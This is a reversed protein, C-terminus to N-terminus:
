APRFPQDDSVPGGKIQRRVPCGHENLAPRGRCGPYIGPQRADPRTLRQLDFTGGGEFASQLVQKTASDYPMVAAIKAEPVNNALAWRQAMDSPWTIAARPRGFIGEIILEIQAVDQVSYVAMALDEISLVDHGSAAACRRAAQFLKETTSPDNPM